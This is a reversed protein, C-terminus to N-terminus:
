KSVRRRERRSAPLVVVVEESRGEGVEMVEMSERRKFKDGKPEEPGGKFEQSRMIAERSENENEGVGM